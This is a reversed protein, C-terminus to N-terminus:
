RAEGGQLRLHGHGPSFPGAHASTVRGAIDLRVSDDPGLVWRYGTIEGFLLLEGRNERYHRQVRRSVWTLRDEYSCDLLVPPMQVFLWPAGTVAATTISEPIVRSHEVYIYPRFAM